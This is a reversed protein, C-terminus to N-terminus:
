LCAPRWTFDATGSASASRYRVTSTGAPLLWWRSGFSLWTPRPSGDLRVTGDRSDLVLNSGAPVDGILEVQEGTEALIIRPNTAPGHIVAIWPTEFTGVNTVAADGPSGVTAGSAAYPFTIPALFGGSTDAGLAVSGASASLYLRPDAGAFSARVRVVSSLLDSVDADIVGPRGDIEYDVGALRVRLTLLGDRVPAWAAVLQHRLQMAAAPSAALIRAEIVIQRARARDAGQPVVGDKGAYPLVTGEIEPGGLGAYSRVALSDAADCTMVVGRLEAEYDSM